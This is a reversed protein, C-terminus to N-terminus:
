NKQLMYIYKNSVCYAFNNSVFDIFGFYFYKALDFKKWTNGGDTTTYGYTGIFSPFDGGIYALSDKIIIGDNTNCFHTIRGPLNNVKWTNGGDTTKYNHDSLYLFGLDENIFYFGYIYNVSSQPINISTWTKGYDTSKYIKQNIGTAYCINEMFFLSNVSPDLNINAVEWTKGGNNTTVLYSGTNIWNIAIGNNEDFFKLSYLKYSISKYYQKTWNLGGNSTKFLIGYTYNYYGAIAYIYGISDNLFYVSSVTISTTDLSLNIWTKASDNTKILQGDYGLIYGTKQNIFNIGDSILNDSFPISDITWGDIQPVGYYKSDVVINNKKCSSIIFITMLVMILVPYKM